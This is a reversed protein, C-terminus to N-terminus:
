KGSLKQGKSLFLEQYCLPFDIFALPGVSDEYMSDDDQSGMMMELPIHSTCRVDQRNHARSYYPLFISKILQDPRTFEM